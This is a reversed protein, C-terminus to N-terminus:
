KTRNKGDSLSKFNSYFDTSSRPGIKHQRREIWLARRFNDIDLLAILPRAEGSMQDALAQPPLRVISPVDCSLDFKFHRAPGKRGDILWQSAISACESRSYQRSIPYAALTASPHPAAVTM